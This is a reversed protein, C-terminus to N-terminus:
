LTIKDNALLRTLLNKCKRVKYLIDMHTKHFKSNETKRKKENARKEARSNSM